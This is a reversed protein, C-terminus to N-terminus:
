RTLWKKFAALGSYQSFSPVDPRHSEFGCDPRGAARELRATYETGGRGPRLPSSELWGGGEDVNEEMDM